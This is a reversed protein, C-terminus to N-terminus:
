SVGPLRGRSRVSLNNQSPERQLGAGTADARATVRKRSSLIRRWLMVALKPGAPDGAGHHSRAVLFPQDFRQQIGCDDEIAICGTRQRLVRMMNFWGILVRVGCLRPMRVDVHHHQLASSISTFKLTLTIVPEFPTSRPARMMAM